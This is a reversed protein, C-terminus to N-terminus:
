RYFIHNGVTGIRTLRWGPSVRRAHFYLASGVECSWLDNRAIHGIAVATKWQASGRPVSPLGSRVFSFQSKQLVVGCISAPFRGSRTRNLITTAVALQGALPEGKSEYYVAVSLCEAERNPTTSSSYQAVLEGLSGARRDNQTVPKVAVSSGKAPLTIDPLPLAPTEGEALAEVVVSQPLLSATVMQAPVEHVSDRALAPAAPGWLTAVVFMGMTAGAAAAAFYDRIM